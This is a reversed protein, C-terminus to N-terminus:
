EGRLGNLNKRWADGQEPIGILYRAIGKRVLQMRRESGASWREYSERFEERFVTLTQNESGKWPSATAAGRIFPGDVLAAVLEPLRPCAALVKEKVYGSYILIDRAGRVNLRELLDLLAERQDLPEGGSITVGPPGEPADLIAALEGVLVGTSVSFAPDFPQNEPAICGECRISCGQLWLGLRRGPGLTLVPWHWFRLLIQGPADTM